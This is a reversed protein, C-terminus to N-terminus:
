SDAQRRRRRRVLLLLQEAEALILAGRILLENLSWVIEGIKPPPEFIADALQVRKETV